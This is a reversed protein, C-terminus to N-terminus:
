ASLLPLAMQSEVKFRQEKEYISQDIVKLSIAHNVDQTVCSVLADSPSVCRADSLAYEVAKPFAEFVLEVFM